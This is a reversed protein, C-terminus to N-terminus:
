ATGNSAGKSQCIHRAQSFLEALEQAMWAKEVLLAFSEDLKRHSHQSIKQKYFVLASALTAFYVTTALATDTESDLTQSLTKSCDKITRLLDLDPQPNLLVQSLSKGMLVDSDCGAQDMMMQM